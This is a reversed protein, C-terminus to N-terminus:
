PYPACAPAPPSLPPPTRAGDIVTVNASGNNAVYIKNTVTNVAIDVPASGVTVTTVTNTAGDIVAVTNGTLDGVYIKNTIPNVAVAHAGPLTTTVTQAQLPAPMSIFGTVAAWAAVTLLGEVKM